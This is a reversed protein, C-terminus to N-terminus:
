LLHPDPEMKYYVSQLQKYDAIGTHSIFTFDEMPPTTNLQFLGNLRAVLLVASNQVGEITGLFKQDKLYCLKQNTLIMDM